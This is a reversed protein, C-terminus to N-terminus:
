LRRRKKKIISSNSIMFCCTSCILFMSSTNARELWKQHTSQRAYYFLTIMFLVAGPIFCIMGLVFGSDIMEMQDGLILLEGNQNFIESNRSSLSSFSNQLLLDIIDM